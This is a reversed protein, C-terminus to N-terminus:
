TAAPSVTFFQDGPPWFGLDFGFDPQEELRQFHTPVTKLEICIRFSPNAEYRTIPYTQFTAGSRDQVKNTQTTGPTDTTQSSLLTGLKNIGIKKHIPQISQITWGTSPRTKVAPKLNQADM